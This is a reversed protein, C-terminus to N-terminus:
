EGKAKAPYTFIWDQSFPAWWEPVGTEKDVHRLFGQASPPAFRYTLQYQGPGSLKIDNAYHPGDSATMPILTGSQSFKSGIKKITYGVSVYPIWEGKKFGHPEGKAAHIDAELHVADPGTVHNHKKSPEIEVGTLYNPQIVLNNKEVAAGIPYETAAFAPTALLALAILTPTRM